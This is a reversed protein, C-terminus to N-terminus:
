SVNKLIDESVQIGLSKARELDIRSSAFDNLHYYAIGRNNYAEGSEPEIKIAADFKEIAAKYDKKRLDVIGLNVHAVAFNPNIVLTEAFDAKAEDLKGALLYATGRNIYLEVAGPKEDILQDYIQIAEEYNGRGSAVIARGMAEHFDM